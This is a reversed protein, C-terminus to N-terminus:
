RANLTAAGAGLKSLRDEMVRRGEDTIGGHDANGAFNPTLPMHPLNWRGRVHQRRSRSQCAAPTHSM